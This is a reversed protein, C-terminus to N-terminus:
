SIAPPARFSNVELFPRSTSITHHETITILFDLSYPVDPKSSAILCTSYIMIFPVVKVTEETTLDNFAHCHVPLGNNHVPKENSVPCNVEKDGYLDNSHHDHPIV